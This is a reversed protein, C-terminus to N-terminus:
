SGNCWINGWRDQAGGTAGQGEDGDASDIYGVGYSAAANFQATPCTFGLFNPCARDVANCVELCPLLMLYDSNMAPLTPSRATRIETSQPILASFVKQPASPDSEDSPQLASLGTADPAPPSSTYATPNSPSPEGCRTFTITCLWRRYERQCDDCAVIPSYWDRGCAFTTLVTTFNTMYSLLPTTVTEPLNAATYANSGTPPPPLPVTYAVNPCYPLEHVLPCAFSASKTAFYMPGSVKTRDQVVYATYNTAPNLAEMLWKTRWRTTDRLWLNESTLTGASKQSSLFCGTQPLTTLPSSAATPSIILTFNPSGLPPPPQSSNAVPLTYNPYSPKPLKEVAFAPSFILAQNSTTDGLLPLDSSSLIEHIPEQDSIGLEFSAQGVNEVALVGGDVFIGTWNGYGDKVVIEFVDLGGGPGPVGSSTSNTVFFMYVAAQTHAAPVMPLVSADVIRLGTLGKVLLDPNVVGYTANRASMAATGVPHYATISTDRLYQDLDADSTLDMTPALVFGNWAPAQVFRRASRLAERAVFLDFPSAYFNPDIIPDAMSNNSDITVSGRSAPSAVAFMISMYNGTPPTPGFLGNYTILEYHATHPGAAPDRYQQFITSNDPIRLWGIESATSACLPGTHNATWQALAQAALTPNRNMTEYTDTANVEWFIGSAPHDTLNQGVSPLHHLPTIGLGSLTASDGIGSHLLINPTGIAGAALIVEKRALLQQFSVGADQTFEVSQFSLPASNSAPIVRTVRTYLLVHLNPRSLYESALYSTAASSRSGNLITYQTYGIGLHYGSNADLNFPFENPLDKTAEITRNDIEYSYGQLTVSNVGLYGHVIPNFEGTINHRDVPRTFHENKRIYPQLGSWSWGQDGTMTAYRDFDESSGRTYVLGNIQSSGGLVHGRPYPLARQGLGAQPSTTYNWDLATNALQGWNFPIVSNLVGEASGGAELVLVSIRSIETLRNALVSGATGGGIIIFDYGGGPLDAYNQYVAADVLWVLAIQLGLGLLRM